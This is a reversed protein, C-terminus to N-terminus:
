ELGFFGFLTSPIFGNVLPTLNLYDLERQSTITLRLFVMSRPMTRCFSLPGINHIQPHRQTTIVEGDNNITSKPESVSGM